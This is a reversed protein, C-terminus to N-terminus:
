RQTRHKLSCVFLYFYKPDLSSNQSELYYHEFLYSSNSNIKCADNNLHFSNYKCVNRLLKQTRALSSIGFIHLKLSFFNGDRSRIKQTNFALHYLGCVKPKCGIASIEHQLSSIFMCLCSVGVREDSLTLNLTLLFLVLVTIEL